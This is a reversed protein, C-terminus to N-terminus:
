VGYLEFDRFLNVDDELFKKLRKDVEEYTYKNYFADLEDETPEMYDAGEWKDFMVYFARHFHWEYPVGHLDEYEKALFDDVEHTRKEGIYIIM